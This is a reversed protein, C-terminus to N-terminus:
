VDEALRVPDHLPVLLASVWIPIRETRAAVAGGMVLPSSLYGDASAHHESLVLMDFGQRDAWESMELAAGYLRQAEPPDLGPARLDFRIVSFMSGTRIGTDKPRCVAPQTRRDPPAKRRVPEAWGPRVMRADGMAARDGGLKL